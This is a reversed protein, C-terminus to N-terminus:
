PRQRHWSLGADDSELRVRDFRQGLSRLLPMLVQEVAEISPVFEKNDTVPDPVGWRFPEAHGDRELPGFILLVYKDTGKVRRVTVREVDMLIARNLEAQDLSGGPM